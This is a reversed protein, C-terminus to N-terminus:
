ISEYLYNNIQNITNTKQNINKYVAFNTNKILCNIM